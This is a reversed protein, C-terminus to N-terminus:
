KENGTANRVTNSFMRFGAPLCEEGGRKYLVGYPANEFVNGTVTIDVTDTGMAYVLVPTATQRNPRTLAGWGGGVNVTLNGTFSCREFGRGLPANQCWVEFAQSSDRIICNRVHIDSWSTTSPTGQMTFAVDYVGKFLCREIVADACNSGFEVGNGYRVRGHAHGVLESGGINEFECDTVRVDFTPVSSWGAYMGHGGVAKVAINSVTMHSSFRLGHMNVAVRIDHSLLAPNNTSYVYLRGDEAAFDWQRSVDYRSFRKWPMVEGDVLLFGPNTDDSAVGGFNARDSLDTCWFNYSSFGAPRWIAPDDRLNKTCSVVPKPGNGYSSVVTRRERDAGGKVAITGYFVDGCRLLVTGGEPLGSNLREVTRWATDPTLGDNRDDGDASCYRVGFALLDAAPLVACVLFMMRFIGISTVM